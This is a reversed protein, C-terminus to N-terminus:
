PWRPSLRKGVPGPIAAYHSVDNYLILRAEGGEQVDLINLGCPSQELRDRYGHLELGLFHGILLRLTAKHSVMLVVEDPHRAALSLLAPLARALVALGTEGGSPAFTFPDKEWRRYEDAFATKVEARTRGEWSGHHVERIEPVIVPDLGRDQTICRATDIARSAPSAYVAAIPLAAVRRGLSRAQIRGEESLPADVSGAFRDEALLTTAGHRVLFLRTPM